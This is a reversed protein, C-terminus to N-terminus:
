FRFRRRLPRRISGQYASAQLVAKANALTQQQQFLQSIAALNQHAYHLHSGTSSFEIFDKRSVRFVVANREARGPFLCWLFSRKEDQPDVSENGQFDFYVPVTSELWNWPFLDDPFHTLFFPGGLPRLNSFGKCFRLYDRKRTIGDVVWAMNKYFLERKQGEKPDMPSHQFEIVVGNATKIDAIHREGNAGDIHIQEQWDKPFCDKWARHWATEKEHWCYLSKRYHKWHWIRKRKIGCHAIMLGQCEQCAGRLGTETAEAREGNVLAFKM